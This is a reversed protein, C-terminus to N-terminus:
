KMEHVALSDTTKRWVFPSEVVLSKLFCHDDSSQGDMWADTIYSSRPLNNLSSRYAVLKDAPGWDLLVHNSEYSDAGLCCSL